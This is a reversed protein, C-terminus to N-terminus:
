IRGSGNKLSQDMLFSYDKFKNECPNGKCYYIKSDEIEDAVAILTASSQFWDGSARHYCISGRGRQTGHDRAIEKIKRFAEEPDNLAIGRTLEHARLERERAYKWTEEITETREVGLLMTLNTIAYVGRELTKRSIERDWIIHWGERRDLVAFNARRYDRKVEYRSLYEVVPKSSGFRDLLELLLTGRSRSVDEGSGTHQDTVAILLGDGNFGMWTGKSRHDIPSFVVREGRTAQPPYEITGSRVYRSHLAVIPYGRILQFLIILTCM